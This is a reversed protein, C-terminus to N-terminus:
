PTGQITEPRSLVSSQSALLQAGPLAFWTWTLGSGVCPWRCRCVYILLVEIIVTIAIARISSLANGTENMAQACRYLREFSGPVVKLDNNMVVLFQLQPYSSFYKWARLMGATNGSTRVTSIVPVGAIRMVNISLQIVCEGCQLSTGMAAAEAQSGDTSNDDVLVVHIPDPMALLSEVLQRTEKWFGCCTTIAVMIYGTNSKAATLDPPYLVSVPFLQSTPGVTKKSEAERWERSAEATRHM